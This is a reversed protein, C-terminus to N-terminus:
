IFCFSFGLDSIQSVSGVILINKVDISYKLVKVEANLSFDKNLLYFHFFRNINFM